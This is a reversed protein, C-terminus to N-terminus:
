LTIRYRGHWGMKLPSQFDTNSHSTIDPLQMDGRTNNIYIALADIRIFQILAIAGFFIICYLM